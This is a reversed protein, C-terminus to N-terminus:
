HEVRIVVTKRTVFRMKDIKNIAERMNGERAEHTLMIVPVTKGEQREEQSMSAISIRKEALVSSIGALVGPSDIVSFRLYYPVKIDEDKVLPLSGKSFSFNFQKFVPKDTLTIYKSIEVIDSMVSSATPRKGAGKGYLLTEGVFDGKIFIANDEGNVSALLHSSPILTPHVRVELMKRLVKAIALLKIEYGWRRAYFIDEPQVDKIGETYINEPEVDAGFGLLALISLKQASDKGSIDLEPDKEAIGKERAMDLAGAFATKNDAMMSLIFNTTGNLIGYILHFKNSVFSESMAKIIPIGGGVSAEFNVFVGNEEAAKFIEKWHHALLAKNATVVHKKNSLATLIIRKAPNIGGILEVVIDIDKDNIVSDADGTREIGAAGPIKEISEIDKSCITKLIIKIGTKNEILKGNEHFSEIVGTGINGAGILGVKVEKM